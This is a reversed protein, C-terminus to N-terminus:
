REWVCLVMGFPPRENPGIEVQGPKLFRMRGPLFEVTLPSLSRDRFPEIQRQWWGQETRNAPLLMVILEAKTEGWAKVCWPEISSYPPNCYVREGAWSAALGCNEESYYKPLKTNHEAAAADVTFRFRAQLKAFDSAPLARDDVHRASGAYRTQKLSASIQPQPENSYDKKAM